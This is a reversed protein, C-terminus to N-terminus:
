QINEWKILIQQEEFADIVVGLSDSIENEGTEPSKIESMTWALVVGGAAQFKVGFAEHNYWKALRDLTSFIPVYSEGTPTAITPFLRDSTGDESPHIFVPVLYIKHMLDAALNKEGMFQNLLDTYYNLFQALEAVDFFTSNGRDGSKKPNFALGSLQYSFAEEMVTMIPREVWDQNQASTQEQQFQELDEQATFVPIVRQGNIEIAYPKESALVLVQHLSSVLALIELFHTPNAIFQRLRHDLEKIM